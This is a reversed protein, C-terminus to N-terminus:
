NLDIYKNLFHDDSLYIVEENVQVAMLNEQPNEDIIDYIKFFPELSKENMFNQFLRFNEEDQLDEIENEKKKETNVDDLKLDNMVTNNNIRKKLHSYFRNKISNQPRGQLKKSILNWKTGFTNFSDMIIADEEFSFPQRKISPVLNNIYRERIQKGTKIFYGSLKEWNKGYDQVLMLLRKDEEPTWFKRLHETQFRRRWRQNCQSPTRGQINASIKIWNNGHSNHLNILLEDESQCWMKVQRKIIKFEKKISHIILNQTTKRLYRSKSKPSNSLERQMPASMM